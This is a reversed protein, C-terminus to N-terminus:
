ISDKEEYEMLEDGIDNVAGAARVIYPVSVVKHTNSGTIRLLFSGSSNVNGTSVTCCDKSGDYKLISVMDAYGPVMEESVLM